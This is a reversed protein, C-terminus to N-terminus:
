SNPHFIFYACTTVQIISIAYSSWGHFSTSVKSRKEKKMKGKKKKEKKIKKRPPFGRM